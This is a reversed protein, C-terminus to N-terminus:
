KKPWQERYIPLVRRCIMGGGVYEHELLTAGGGAEVGIRGVKVSVDLFTLLIRSAMYSEKACSCSLRTVGLVGALLASGM